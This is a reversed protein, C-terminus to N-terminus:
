VAGKIGHAAEIARSIQEFDDYDCFLGFQDIHHLKRLFEDTLPKRQPPTTYLPGAVPRGNKWEIRTQPFFEDGRLPFVCVHAVPEQEPEKPQPPTTYLKDGAKLSKYPVLWKAVHASEDPYGGITEVVAVPEQEPEKPQPPTTYVNVPSMSPQLSAGNLVEVEIDPYDDTETIHLRAVPEQKHQEAVAPQALAEKIATIANDAKELDDNTTTEAYHQNILNELAELALKLAETQTTM